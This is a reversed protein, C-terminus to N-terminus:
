VLIFSLLFILNYNMFVILCLSSCKMMSWIGTWYMKLRSKFVSTSQSFRISSPLANWLRPAAVSFARDGRSKLKSKPIRLLRQNSSRLSVVPRHESLLDSLYPPALGFFINKLDVRYRVPQWHLSRLVPTIHDRKKACTLLRAAANQVMQLRSLASQSIGYILLNCYDLFVLIPFGQFSPALM